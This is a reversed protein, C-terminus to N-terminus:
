TVLTMYIYIYSMLLRLTLSKVRIRSIHLFHHALLALLYCIPNLEPNLPNIIYVVYHLKVICILVLKRREVMQLFDFCLWCYLHWCCIPKHHMSIIVQRSSLASYVLIHCDHRINCFNNCKWCINYRDEVSFGSLLCIRTVYRFIQAGKVWLPLYVVLDSLHNCVCVHFCCKVNM